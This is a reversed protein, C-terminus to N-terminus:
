QDRNFASVNVNQAAGVGKIMLKTTPTGTTSTGAASTGFESGLFRSLRVVHSEGPELELLPTFRNTLEDFTGIEVYVNTGSNDDNSMRCIGPPSLASLDVITGILAATIVGPLPGKAISPDLNAVFTSQPSQYKVNTSLVTLSSSVRIESSM